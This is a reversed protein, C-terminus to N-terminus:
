ACAWCGSSASGHALRAETYLEVAAEYRDEGFAKGAETMALALSRTAMTRANRPVVSSECAARSACPLLVAPTRAHAALRRRFLGAPAAARAYAPRRACLSRLPRM